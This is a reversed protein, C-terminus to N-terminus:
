SLGLYSFYIKRLLKEYISFRLTNHDFEKGAAKEQEILKQRLNTINLVFSEDLTSPMISAIIAEEEFIELKTIHAFIIDGDEFGLEPIFLGKLIVQNDLLLDEIVCYESSMNIRTIKYFSYHSKYMQILIYRQAASLTLSLDELYHLAFPKGGSWNWRFLLWPIFGNHWLNKLNINKPFSCCSTFESFAQDIHSSTLYEIAYPYLINHILLNAQNQLYLNIKM